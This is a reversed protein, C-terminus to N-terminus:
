KTTRYPKRCERIYQRASNLSCEEIMEFLRKRNPIVYLSFLDIKIEQVGGLARVVFEYESRCWVDNFIYFVPNKIICNEKKKEILYKAAYYRIYGLDFLNVPLSSAGQNTSPLIVGFYLEQIKM